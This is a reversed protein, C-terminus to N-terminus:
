PILIELDAVLSAVADCIQHIPAQDVSSLCIKIANSVTYTGWAGCSMGTTRPTQVFTTNHEFVFTHEPCVDLDRADIAPSNTLSMLISTRSSALLGPIESDKLAREFAVLYAHCTPQDPALSFDDVVTLSVVGNVLGDDTEAGLIAHTRRDVSRILLQFRHKPFSDFEGVITCAAGSDDDVRWGADIHRSSISAVVSLYLSFRM